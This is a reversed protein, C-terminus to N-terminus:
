ASLGEVYQQEAPPAIPLRLRVCGGGLGGCRIELGGGAGATLERVIDLGRADPRPRTTGFGPGDDEVQTVAGGAEAGIWVRVTGTPGAARVANQLLNRLVRWFALRDTVATLEEARFEILTSHSRRITEVVEAAVLDLRTHGPRPRPRPDTPALVCEEYARQLRGLWRLESLILLARERSDAGVDPATSLLTALLSITGLEHHIDHSLQRCRSWTPDRHANDIESRAAPVPARGSRVEDM